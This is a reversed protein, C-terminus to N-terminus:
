LQGGYIFCGLWRFVLEFEAPRGGAPLGAAPPPLDLRKRSSESAASVPRARTAM